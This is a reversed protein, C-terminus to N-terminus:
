AVLCNKQDKLILLEYKGTVNRLEQGKLHYKRSKRWVAAITLGTHGDCYYYRHCPTGYKVAVTASAPSMVDNVHVTTIM